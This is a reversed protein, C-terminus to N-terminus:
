GARKAPQAQEARPPGAADAPRLGAVGSRHEAAAALATRLEAAQAEGITVEIAKALSGETIGRALCAHDPCLYAGRGPSKGRLDVSLGGDPARVVRM